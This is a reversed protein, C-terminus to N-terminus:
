RSAYLACSIGDNSRRLSLCGDWGQEPRPPPHALSSWFSAVIHCNPWTVRGMPTGGIHALCVEPAVDKCIIQLHGHARNILHAQLRARPVLPHVGTVQPRAQWAHCCAASTIIDVNTSCVSHGGARSALVAQMEMTCKSPIGSM